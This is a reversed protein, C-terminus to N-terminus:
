VFIIRQCNCDYATLRRYGESDKYVCGTDINIVSNKALVIKECMAVKVPNHGHVITKYSLLPNIYTEKCTWLMSYHDIFPNLLNDNFGAHVCKSINKEDEFVDLLMAEHNGMLPIVDYGNKSLEIIFDVVEKSKNGRDIYDGLLILKDEKQLQIKNEVLERLSDFCGHIDGIAFLRNNM